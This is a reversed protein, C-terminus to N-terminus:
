KLEFQGFLCVGSSLVGWAQIQGTTAHTVATWGTKVSTVYKVIPPVDPRDIGSTGAGVVLEDQTILVKPFPKKATRDWAWGGLTVGPRAGSYRTATGDVYGTCGLRPAGISSIKKGEYRRAWAPLDPASLSSVPGRNSESFSPRSCGAVIVAACVLAPVIRLVGM